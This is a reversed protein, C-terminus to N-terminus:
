KLRQPTMALAGLLSGAIPVRNGSDPTVERVFGGADQTISM